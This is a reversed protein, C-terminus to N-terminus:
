ITVQLVISWLNLYVTHLIYHRHVKVRVDRITSIMVQFYYVAFEDDCSSLQTVCSPGGFAYSLMWITTMVNRSFWLASHKSLRTLGYFHSVSFSYLTTCEKCKQHNFHLVAFLRQLLLIGSTSSHWGNEHPELDEPIWATVQNTSRSTEFVPPAKM